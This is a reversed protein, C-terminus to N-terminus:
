PENPKYYPKYTGPNLKPNVFPKNFNILNIYPKYPKYLKYPKCYPPKYPKYPRYPKNPDIPNIHNTPNLSRAGLHGDASGLQQLRIGMLVVVLGVLNVLVDFAVALILCVM